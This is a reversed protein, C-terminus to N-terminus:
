YSTMDRLMYSFENIIYEEFIEVNAKVISNFVRVHANINVYKTFNLYKLVVKNPRISHGNKHYFIGQTKISPKQYGGRPNKADASRYGRTAISNMLLRDITKNVHITMMLNTFVM